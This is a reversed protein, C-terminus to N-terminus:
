LLHTDKLIKKRALINQDTLSIPFDRFEDRDEDYKINYAKLFKQYLGKEYDKYIERYCDQINMDGFEFLKGTPYVTSLKFYHEIEFEECLEANLDNYNPKVFYEKKLEQTPLALELSPKTMEQLELGLRECNEFVYNPIATFQYGSGFGSYIPVLEEDVFFEGIRYDQVNEKTFLFKYADEAFVFFHHYYKLDGYKFTNTNFFRTGSPLACLASNLYAEIENYYTCCQYNSSLARYVLM